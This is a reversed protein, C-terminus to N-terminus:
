LFAELLNPDDTLEMENVWHDFMAGVMGDYQPAALKCFALVEDDQNYDWPMKDGVYHVIHECDVADMGTTSDWIFGDYIMLSLRNTYNRFYCLNGANDLYTGDKNVAITTINTM